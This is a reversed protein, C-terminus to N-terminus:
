HTPPNTCLIRGHLLLNKLWLIRRYCSCSPARRDTCSYHGCPNRRICQGIMLRHTHDMSPSVMWPVICHQNSKDGKTCNSFCCWKSQIDGIYGNDDGSLRASTLPFGPLWVWVIFKRDFKQRASNLGGYDHVLRCFGTNYHSWIKVVYLRLRSAAAVKSAKQQIPVNMKDMSNQTYKQRGGGGGCAPTFGFPTMSRPWPTGMTSAVGWVIWNPLRIAHIIHM